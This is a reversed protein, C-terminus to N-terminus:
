SLRLGTIQNDMDNDITITNTADAQVQLSSSVTSGDATVWCLWNDVIQSSTWDSDGVKIQLRSWQEFTLKANARISVTEIVTPLAPSWYIVPSNVRRVDLIRAGQDVQLIQFNAYGFNNVSCLENGNSFYFAGNEYYAPNYTEDDTEIVIKGESLDAVTFGRAFKIWGGEGASWPLAPDAMLDNSPSALRQVSYISYDFGETINVNLSKGDSSLAVEGFHEGDTTSLVLQGNERVFVAFDQGGDIEIKVYGNLLEDETIPSSFTIVGGQNEEWPLAPSAQVGM